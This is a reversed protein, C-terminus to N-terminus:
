FCFRHSLNSFLSLCSASLRAYAQITLIKILLSRSRASLPESSELHRSTRAHSGCTGRRLSPLIEILFASVLTCLGGAFTYGQNAVKCFLNVALRFRDLSTGFLTIVVGFSPNIVPFFFGSDSTEWVVWLFSVRGMVATLIYAYFKPLYVM